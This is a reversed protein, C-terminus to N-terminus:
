SLIIRLKLIEKPAHYPANPISSEQPRKQALLDIFGGM